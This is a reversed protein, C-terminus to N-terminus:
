GPRASPGPEANPRPIDGLISPRDMLMSEGRFVPSKRVDREIAAASMTYGLFLVLSVAGMGIWLWQNSFSTAWDNLGHLVSPISIGIAILLVRQRRYNVGMGIFFGSIGAWVAHQFGDLFVRLSFALVVPVSAGGQEGARLYLATYKVSEAVGFALGAICGLFMWMRVDLKEKRFKLLILAAVLVPLAKTIEEAYGVGYIWPLLQKPSATKDLAKEWPITLIPTLVLTGVIIAVGVGIVQKTIEGPRILFYFVIAWLPAVYLSYAWGPTTLNTSHLFLVFFVSPLLGYAIVLLRFGQKWGPNNLWSRVPLLIHLSSALEAIQPERHARRGGKGQAPLAGAGPAGAGPPYPGQGPPWGAPQAGPYGAGPGPPYGPGQGPPYGAGPGPPYGPPQGPQAPQHAAGPGPPTGYDAAPPAPHGAGPPDGFGPVPSGGYVPAPPTGYDAAPPPTGYDAAPPAPHGPGPPDGFGPVPSGGYAPAPPPSAEPAPAPDGFGPVPSGGAPVGLDPVPLPGAPAAPAPAFGGPSPSAAHTAQYGGPAPPPTVAGSPATALRIEQGHDPDGVRVTIASFITMQRIPRGDMFTGNSSQDTLVWGAQEMALMAHRRSARPHVVLIQADTDRGIMVQQGPRFRLEAGDPLVQVLLDPQPGTM